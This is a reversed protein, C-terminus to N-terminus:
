RRRRRKAKAKAAAKRAKHLSALRRAERATPVDILLSWHARGRTACRTGGKGAKGTHEIRRKVYGQRQLLQLNMQAWHHLRERNMEEADALDRDPQLKGRRKKEARQLPWLISAVQITTLEGFERLCFLVARSM